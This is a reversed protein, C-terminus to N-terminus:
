KQKIRQQAKWCLSKFVFGGLGPLAIRTTQKHWYQSLIFHVLSSLFDFFPSELNYSLQYLQDFCTNHFLVHITFVFHISHVYFYSVYPTRRLELIHTFCFTDRVTIQYLNWSLTKVQRLSCLSTFRFIKSIETTFFTSRKSEVREERTKSRKSENKM